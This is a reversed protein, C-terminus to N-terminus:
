LTQCNESKDLIEDSSKFRNQYEGMLNEFTFFMYNSNDLFYTKGNDSFEVGYIYSDNEPCNDCKGWWDHWLSDINMTTTHICPENPEYSEYFRVDTTTPNIKDFINNLTM